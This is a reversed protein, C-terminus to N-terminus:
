SPHNEKHRKQEPNQQDLATTFEMLSLSAASQVTPITPSTISTYTIPEPQQDFGGSNYYYNDSNDNSYDIQHHATYSSPHVLVAQVNAHIYTLPDVSTFSGPDPHEYHDDGGSGDSDNDNGYMDHDQHLHNYNHHDHSNYYPAYYDEQEVRRLEDRDENQSQTQDQEEEETEGGVLTEEEEEEMDTDWNEEEEEEEGEQDQDTEHRNYYYKDLVDEEEEEEGEGDYEDDEGEGEDEDEDEEDEDDNDDYGARMREKEAEDRIMGMMLENTLSPTSLDDPPPQSGNLSQRRKARDRELRRERAEQELAERDTLPAIAPAPAIPLLGGHEGTGHRGQYYDVLGHRNHSRTYHGHSSRRRGTGHSSLSSASSEPAENESTDEEDAYEGGDGDGAGTGGGGGMMDIDEDQSDDDDSSHSSSPSISTSSSLSGGGGSSSSSSSYGDNSSEDEHDSYDRSYFRGLAFPRANSTAESSSTGFKNWQEMPEDPASTSSFNASFLASPSSPSTAQHHPNHFTAIAAAESQPSRNARVHPHLPHDDALGRRYRDKGGFDIKFLKM